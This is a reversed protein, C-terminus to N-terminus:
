LSGRGGEEEEMMLQEESTETLVKSIIPTLKAYEALRSWQICMGDFAIVPKGGRGEGEKGEEEGERHHQLELPVRPYRQSFHTLVTVQANVKASIELAEAITCHNKRVAHDRYKTEFTAEHILVTTGKRAEEIFAPCPRTDGSFALRWGEVHTVICGFADRCHHVPISSLHTFGLPRLFRDFTEPERMFHTHHKFVFGFNSSTMGHSRLWKFAVHPGIVLVEALKPRHHLLSILGLLHDAHKHSIWICRLSALKQRAATIGFHRVMQGWVSEGCDLLVSGRVGEVLIGTGGRYKSPEACGTGLFVVRTEGEPRRRRKALPESVEADPPPGTGQKTMIAQRLRAAASRNECPLPLSPEAALPPPTGVLNENLKDLPVTGRKCEGSKHVGFWAFIGKWAVMKPSAVVADGSSSSEVHGACRETVPLKFMEQDVQQLRLLTRLSGSFGFEMANTSRMNVHTAKPMSDMLKRYEKSQTLACPGRHFVLLVDDQRTVLHKWIAGIMLVGADAVTKCDVLLVFKGIKKLHICHLLIDSGVRQGGNQACGRRMCIPSDGLAAFQSMDPLCQNSKAGGCIPSDGAGGGSAGNALLAWGRSVSVDILDDSYVLADGLQGHAHETVLVYPYKWRVINQCSFLLPEWLGEPGFLHM